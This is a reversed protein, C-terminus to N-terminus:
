SVGSTDDFVDYKRVLDADTLYGDEDVYSKKQACSGVINRIDKYSSTEPGCADAQHGAVRQSIDVIEEDNEGLRREIEQAKDEREGSRLGILVMACGTVIIGGHATTDGLRAAPKGGILVAPADSNKAFGSIPDTRNRTCFILRRGHGEAVWTRGADTGACVGRPALVGALVQRRTAYGQMEDGGTSV